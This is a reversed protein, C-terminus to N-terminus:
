PQLLQKFEGFTLTFSHSHRPPVVGPPLDPFPVDKADAIWNLIALLKAFRDIERVCAYREYIAPMEKASDVPLEGDIEKAVSKAIERYANGIREPSLFEVPKTGPKGQVLSKHVRRLIELEVERDRNECNELWPPTKVPGWFRTRLLIHKPGKAAEVVLRGDRATIRAEEDFWQYGVGARPVTSFVGPAEAHILLDLVMGPTALRTDVLAPHLIFAAKRLKMDSTCSVLNCESPYVGYKQRMDPTPRVIHYACWLDTPTFLDYYVKNSGTPGDVEVEIVPWAGEMLITSKKPRPSNPHSRNGLVVGGFVPAASVSRSFVEYRGPSNGVQSEIQRHALAYQQSNSHVGSPTSSTPGNSSSPPPTNGQANLVSHFVSELQQRAMTIQFELHEIDYGGHLRAQRLLDESHRRIAERLNNADRTVPLGQYGNSSQLDRHVAAPVAISVLHRNIADEQADSLRFDPGMINRIAEIVAAKPLLHHLDLGDGKRELRELMRQSGVEWLSVGPHRFRSSARQDTRLLLHEIERRQEPTGQPEPSNQALLSECPTCICAAALGAILALSRWKLLPSPPVLWLLCLLTRLM